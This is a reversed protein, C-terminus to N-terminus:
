AGERVGLGAAPRWLWLLRVRQVRVEQAAAQGLGLPAHVGEEAGGGERCLCPEGGGTSRLEMTGHKPALGAEPRQDAAFQVLM